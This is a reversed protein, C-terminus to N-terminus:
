RRGRFITQIAKLLRAWWSFLRQWFSQQIEKILASGAEFVSSGASGTLPQYPSEPSVDVTVVIRSGVDENTLTYSSGTADVIAQRAGNEDERYWTYTVYQLMLSPVNPISVTLTNGVYTGGSIVPEVYVYATNVTLPVIQTVSDYNTSDTPTFRMEYTNFTGTRVPVDNALVYAFTGDGSGGDIIAQGVSQGYEITGGTPFTYSIGASELSAKNITVRLSNRNTIVLSYNGAAAGQLAPVVFSVTKNRGADPTSVMGTVTAPLYVDDIDRLVGNLESFHIVIDNSVGNYEKDEATATATLPAKTVNLKGTKTIIVYNSNRLLTVNVTILYPSSTNNVPSYRVYSTTVSPEAGFIDLLTEDEYLAGDNVTYTLAPVPDGYRVAANGATLTIQKARVPVGIRLTATRYNANDTNEYNVTYQKPTGTNSVEPVPTAGDVLAWTYYQAEDAFQGGNLSAIYAQLEENSLNAKSDYIRESMTLRGLSAATLPAIKNVTITLADTVITIDYNANNGVAEITSMDINCVGAAPDTVAVTTDNAIRFTSRDKSMLGTINYFYAVLGSANEDALADSYDVIPTKLGVAATIPAPAIAASATGEIMNYNSAKDGLLYVGTLDAPVADGCNADAFTVRANRTNLEVLGADAECLGSSIQAPSSPDVFTARTTGDYVKDSVAFSVTLDRKTITMTGILVGYQAAYVGDSTADYTIAYTGVNVPVNTEGNYKVTFEGAYPMDPKDETEDAEYAATDFGVTATHQAADYVVSQEYNTVIWLASLTPLEPSVPDTILFMSGTYNKKTARVTITLKLQKGEYSADNFLMNRRTSIVNGPDDAFEWQYTYTDVDSPDVGSLDAYVYGNVMLQGALQLTGSIAKPTVKVKETLGITVPNVNDGSPIFTVAFPAGTGDSGLTEEVNIIDQARAFVLVGRVTVGNFSFGIEDMDAARQAQELTTSASYVYELTGIGDIATQVTAAPITAKQVTLLASSGLTVTYNPDVVLGPQQAATFTGDANCTTLINYTGVGDGKTYTTTAAITGSYVNSAEINTDEPLFTFATPADDTYCITMDQPVLRVALPVIHLTGSRREIKYNTLTENGYFAFIYYDGVGDNLRDYAASDYDDAVVYKFQISQSYSASFLSEDDGNVFGEFEVEAANAAPIERFVATADPAVITLTRKVVNMEGGTFGTFTYNASQLDFAGDIKVTLETNAPTAVTYDSTLRYGSYNASLGALTGVQSIYGGNNELYAANESALYTEDDSSWNSFSWAYDSAAPVTSGYVIDGPIYTGTVAVPRKSVPVTVSVTQTAYNPDAPTFVFSYNNNGASPVEDPDAPVFSGSGNTMAASNETAVQALTRLPDYVALAVEPLDIHSLSGRTITMNRLNITAINYCGAKPGSLTLVTGSPLSIPQNTCVAGNNPYNYTVNGISFQTGYVDGGFAGTVDNTTFVYTGTKVVAGTAPDTSYAVTAATGTPGVAVTIDRRNVTLTDTAVSDLTFNSGAIPGATQSFLMSYDGALTTGAVYEVAEEGNQLRVLPTVATLFETRFTGSLVTGNDIEDGHVTFTNGTATAVIYSDPTFNEGYTVSASNMTVAVKLADVTVTVNFDDSAVNYNYAKNSKPTAVVKFASGSQAVTPVTSDSYATNEDGWAFDFDGLFAPLAAEAIGTVGDTDVLPIKNLPTSYTVTYTKDEFGPTAPTITVNFTGACAARNKATNAPLSYKVTWVGADTPLGSVANAATIETDDARTGYYSYSFKEENKYTTDYAAGLINTLPYGNAEDDNHTRDGKLEGGSAATLHLDAKALEEADYEFSADRLMDFSLTEVPQEYYDFFIYVRTGDCVQNFSGNHVNTMSHTAGYYNYRKISNNSDFTNFVTSNDGSFSTQLIADQDVSMTFSAPDHKAYHVNKLEWKYTNKPAGGTLSSGLSTAQTTTRNGVIYSLASVANNISTDASPQVRDLVYGDQAANLKYYRYAYLTKTKTDSGAGGYAMDSTSITATRGNYDSVTGATPSGSYGSRVSLYNSNETSNGSQQWRFEKTDSSYREWYTWRSPSSFVGNSKYAQRQSPSVGSNEPSYYILSKAPTKAVALSVNSATSGQTWHNYGDSVDAVNTTIYGGEVVPANNWYALGVSWASLSGNISYGAVDKVSGTSTCKSADYQSKSNIRGNTVTIDDSLIGYAIGGAFCKRKTNTAHDAAYFWSECIVDITGGNMTVIGDYVGYAWEYCRMGAGNSDGASSESTDGAAKGWADVDITGSYINVKSTSTKNWIGTSWIFVHGAGDGKVDNYRSKEYTQLYPGTSSQLTGVNVTGGENEILSVHCSSVEHYDEKSNGEENSHSIVLSGEGTINLTAGSKVIFMRGTINEWGDRSMSVSVGNNIVLNITAGSQVTIYDSFSGPSCSGTVTVTKTSGSYVSQIESKLSDWSSVNVASVTPAFMNVAFPIASVVLCLALVILGVRIRRADKRKMMAM